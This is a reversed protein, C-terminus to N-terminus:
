KEETRLANSTRYILGAIEAPSEQCGDSLWSRIVAYSGYCLFRYVYEQLSEPFQNLISEAMMKRISSLNFLREIFASDVASNLMVRYNEQNGALFEMIQCLADLEVNEESSMLYSELAQFFDNEIEELLDYQSGYYKYFTTRNIQAKACLAQITIKEISKEAMLAILADKLMTKTLRIRQNEM